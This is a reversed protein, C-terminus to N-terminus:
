TFHGLFHILSVTKGTTLNQFRLGYRRLKLSNSFYEGQDVVMDFVLKCSLNRLYSIDEGIHLDIDLFTTDEAHDDNTIYDFGLGHPSTDLLRGLVHFDPRVAFYMMQDPYFRPNLNRETDLKDIRRDIQMPILLTKVAVNLHLMWFFLYISM